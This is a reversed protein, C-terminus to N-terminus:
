IVSKSVGHAAHIPTKHLPSLASSLSEVKQRETEKEVIDSNRSSSWSGRNSFHSRRGTAEHINKGGVNVANKLELAAKVFSGDRRFRSFFNSDRKLNFIKQDTKWEFFRITVSILIPMCVAICPIFLAGTFGVEDGAMDWCLFAFFFCSSNVIPWVCVKMLSIADSVQKDFTILANDEFEPIGYIRYHMFRGIFLLWVFCTLVTAAIIALALYPSCLGFTLLIVAANAFLSTVTKINLLRKGRAIVYKNAAAEEPSFADPGEQLWNDPWIIGIVISLFKNADKTVCLPTLLM